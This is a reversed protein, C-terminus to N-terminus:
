LKIFLSVISLVIGASLAVKLKFSAKKHAAQEKKMRKLLMLRRSRDIDRQTKIAVLARRQMELESAIQSLNSGITKEIAAIKDQTPKLDVPEAAVHVIKEVPRDVYVTNTVVESPMMKIIPPSEVIKEVVRDVYQIKTTSEDSKPNNTIQISM